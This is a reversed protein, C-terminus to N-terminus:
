FDLSKASEIKSPGGITMAPLDQQRGVSRKTRFFSATQTLMPVSQM